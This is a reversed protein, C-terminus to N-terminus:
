VSWGRYCVSYEAAFLDQAEHQNHVLSGDEWIGDLGGICAAWRRSGIIDECSMGKRELEIRSAMGQGEFRLM